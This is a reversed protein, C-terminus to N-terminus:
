EDDKLRKIDNAIDLLNKRVISFQKKDSLVLEIYNLTMILDRYIKDLHKDM